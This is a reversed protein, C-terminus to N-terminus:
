YGAVGRRWSLLLRLTAGGRRWSALLGFIAGGGRCSALLRYTAGGGRWSPLLGYSARGERLDTHLESIAAGGRFDPLLGVWVLFYGKPSGSDRPFAEFLCYLAVIFLYLVSKTFFVRSVISNFM